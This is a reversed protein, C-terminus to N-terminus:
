GGDRPPQALTSLDFARVTPRFVRRSRPAEHDLDGYDPVCRACVDYRDEDDPVYRDQSPISVYISRACCPSPRERCTACEPPTLACRSCWYTSCEECYQAASVEVMGRCGDCPYAEAGHERCLGTGTCDPCPVPDDARYDLAATAPTIPDAVPPPALELRLSLGPATM